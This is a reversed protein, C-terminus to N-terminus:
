ATNAMIFKPLENFVKGTISNLGVTIKKEITINGSGKVDGESLFLCNINPAITATRLKIKADFIIAPLMKIGSARSADRSM